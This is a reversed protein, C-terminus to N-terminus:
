SFGCCRARPMHKIVTRQDTPPTVCFQSVSTHKTPLCLVGQGAGSPPALSASGQQPAECLSLVGNGCSFVSASVPELWLAPLQEIQCSPRGRPSPLIHAAPGPPSLGQTMVREEAPESCSYGNAQGDKHEKNGGDDDAEGAGTATQVLHTASWATLVAAGLWGVSVGPHRPSGALARTQSHQPSPHCAWPGQSPNEECGDHGGGCGGGHHM